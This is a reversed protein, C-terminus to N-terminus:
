DSVYTPHKARCIKLKKGQKRKIRIFVNIKGEEMAAM